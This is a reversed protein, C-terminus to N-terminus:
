TTNCRKVEEKIEEALHILTNMEQTLFQRWLPDQPNQKFHDLGEKLRVASNDLLHVLEELRKM